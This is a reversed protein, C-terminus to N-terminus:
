VEAPEGHRLGNHGTTGRGAPKLIGGILAKGTLVRSMIIVRNKVQM